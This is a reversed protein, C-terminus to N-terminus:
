PHFLVLCNKAKEALAPNKVRKKVVVDPPFEDGVSVLFLEQGTNGGMGGYMTSYRFGGGEMTYHDGASIRLQKDLAGNKRKMEHLLKSEM